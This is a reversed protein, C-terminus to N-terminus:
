SEGSKLASECFAAAGTTFHVTFEGEGLATVKALVEAGWTNLCLKVNSFQEMNLAGAIPVIRAERESIAKLGYQTAAADVQKDRILYCLVVVPKKLYTLPIEEATIALNFPEGIANINYILIPEQVGKPYVESTQVVNMAAKVTKVTYESLLVQGGITYSEVRSCLNVNNGIVNYKMARPSGINGVITEGTNIGIGMELRPYNNEKNWQNVREMALQMEIACAVAKDPHSEDDV